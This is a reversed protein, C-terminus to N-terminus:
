GLIEPFLNDQSDSGLFDNRMEGVHHRRIAGSGASKADHLLPEANVDLGQDVVRWVNRDPRGASQVIERGAAIRGETPVKGARQTNEM